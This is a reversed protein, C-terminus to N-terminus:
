EMVTLTRKILIILRHATIVFMVLEIVMKTLRTQTTYGPATILLKKMQLDNPSTSRLTLQLLLLLVIIISVVVMMTTM